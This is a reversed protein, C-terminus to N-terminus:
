VMVLHADRRGVSRYIRPGLDLRFPGMKAAPASERGVVWSKSTRGEGSEAWDYAVNIAVTPVFIQRGALEIARVEEKKMGAIADLRLSEGPALSVHPSGSHRHIPGNLFATFDETESANFMRTDIRINRAPTDGANTIELQFHVVAETETAAAREPKIDLELWPREAKAPVATASLPEPLRAPAPAIAPALQAPAPEDPEPARDAPPAADGAFLAGALTDRGAADRRAVTGRRRRWGWLFLVIAAVGGLGAIWPWYLTPEAAVPAPAARPPATEVPRSPTAPAAVPSAAPLPPAPRPQRAVAPAPRVRTGLPAPPSPATRATDTATRAVPPSVAPRPAPIAAAASPPPSQTTAPRPATQVPQQAPPRQVPQSTTPSPVITQQGPLQFNKLQPPGVTSNDQAALASAWLGLILGVAEAVRRSRNSKLM